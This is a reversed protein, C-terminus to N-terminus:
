RMGGALIMTYLLSTLAASLGAAAVLLQRWYYTSQKGEAVRRALRRNTRRAEKLRGRLEAAQAKLARNEEAVAQADALLADMNYVM